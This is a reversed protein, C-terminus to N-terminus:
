ASITNKLSTIIEDIDGKYGYANDSLIKAVILLVRVMLRERITLQKDM